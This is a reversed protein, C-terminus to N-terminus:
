LRRLVRKKRRLLAAGPHAERDAACNHFRMTATYPQISGYPALIKPQDESQTLVHRFAVPENTAMFPPHAVPVMFVRLGTTYTM